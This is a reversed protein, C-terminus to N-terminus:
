LTIIFHNSLFITRCRRDNIEDKSLSIYIIRHIYNLNDGVLEFGSSFNEM